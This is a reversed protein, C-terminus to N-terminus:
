QLDGAQTNRFSAPLVDAARVRADARLGLIWQSFVRDGNEAHYANRRAQALPTDWFNIGGCRRRFAKLLELRWNGSYHLSAFFVNGRTEDAGSSCVAIWPPTTFSQFNRSQLTKVGPTLRATRPMFERAWEGALHMLEFEGAPLQCSASQANELTIPKDGGNALVIWRQMLDLEPLVRYFASVKLPYAADKLNIRLGPQGDIPAISSSDYILDADRVGDAYVVEIAPVQEGLGGRFPVERMTSGIKASVNLRDTPLNTLGDSPGYYLPVVIGDSALGIEYLSRATQIKWVTTGAEQAATIPQTAQGFSDM